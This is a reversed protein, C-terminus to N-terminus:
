FLRGKHTVLYVTLERLRKISDEAFGLALNCPNCILGRIDGTEHDHDLVLKTQKGCAACRGRQQATMADFQNVTMGYQARLHVNRSKRRLGEPDRQKRSEYTAKGLAKRCPKCSPCRGNRGYSYEAFDDLPKLEKCTICKRMGTEAEERALQEARTKSPKLPETLPDGTTRWRQYHLGCLGRARAPEGCIVCKARTRMQVETTGQRRKRGYHKRCLGHAVVDTRSCGEPADCTRKDM